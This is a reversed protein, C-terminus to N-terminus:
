IPDSNEYTNVTGHVSPMTSDHILDLFTLSPFTANTALNVLNGVFLIDITNKISTVYRHGRVLHLFTADGRKM